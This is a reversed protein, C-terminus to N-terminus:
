AALVKQWPIAIYKSMAGNRQVGLTQNFQCANPRGRRCSPCNGCSTYPIVTVAQGISLYDPVSHGKKAITGAVEHGPIVPYKVMPNRGLYSSLDSGCFGVFKIEILVDEKGIDPISIEKINIEGPRTIQISRM